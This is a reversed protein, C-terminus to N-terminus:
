ADNIVCQFRHNIKYGTMLYGTITNCGKSKGLWGIKGAIAGPKAPDGYNELSRKSIASALNKGPHISNIYKL